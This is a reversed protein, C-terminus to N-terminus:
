EEAGFLKRLRNQLSQKQDELDIMKIECIKGTHLSVLFSYEEASPRCYFERSQWPMSSEKPMDKRWNKIYALIEDNNVPV